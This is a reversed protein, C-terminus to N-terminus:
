ETIDKIVVCSGIYGLFQGEPTFNPKARNHLWLFDKDHHQVRYKLEFPMKDAFSNDFTKMTKPLDDPHVGDTWGKQLAEEMTDSRFELWAKNFFSAKKDKDTVWIMVPANDALNRFWTEREAIIQQARRHETIDELALLILQDGHVRQTIRRANLILVKEGIGPFNHIIEYGNIFTNGSLIDELLDRMKPIDWQKHNLEYFLRGETHEERLNYTKYFNYNASKVRLNHDLLVLSERITTFVAEAYDQTESLQENRLQLEQNITVLEENSSEIEEKSTELEENISQLEENSSVIEENASQLEEVAAEQAEVITRMDEKLAAMEDELQKVRKDKISTYDIEPRNAEEEFTVLYFPEELEKKLPIVEITFYRIKGNENLELGTKKVSEGNRQSKLVTNRLEFGLGPRAMKLLNLSARGPTPELFVGTSGRFQVIDMDKNIVVSAPTFKKLLLADVQKDLDTEESKLKQMPTQKGTAVTKNGDPLHYAMDFLARATSDKKKTYIKIKKDIQTFINSSSAVTESRGLILYGNPNLAYHFAGIIKKQLPNDIYILLNCCSIIDLRSFPPDKAINHTAFICLDRISKIIRYSGDIKTFFRQIRRPSVDQMDAKTYVGLRAKNIAPESLDTAFIQIPLHAYQEGLVEILLIALSYVEQGTSCAPIWIRIPENQRKNSILDPLLHEKLYDSLEPDRFFTTVNILLDQFLQNIESSNDKIFEVYENLNDLRNLTMRRIIRRKITNMKYQSFDVGTAKQMMKLVNVLEEDKNSITEGNLDQLAQYYADKQKALVKLEEAIEFPSLILDIAGEAIASKPMTNFLASDNQAFTLGGAMKISKAGIAGDSDAGSLIIGIAYEKYNEALSNFLRNIPMNDYDVKRSSINLSRDILNIEKGPPIVYFFDAEIPMDDEALLVPMRSRKALLENLKSPVDPNQHQLYIFAMGTHVPLNEVIELVAEIAGASGGLAVIPFSKDAEASSKKPTKKM